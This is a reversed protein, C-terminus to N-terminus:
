APEPIGYVYKKVRSVYIKIASELHKAEKLSVKQYASGDISKVIDRERIMYKTIKSKKSGNDIWTEQWIWTQKDLRFFERDHGKQIPGFIEKGIKAERRILDRRIVSELSESKKSSKNFYQTFINM